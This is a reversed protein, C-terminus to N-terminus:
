TPTCSEKATKPWTSTQCVAGFAQEYFAIAAVGDSVVLHPIPASYNM